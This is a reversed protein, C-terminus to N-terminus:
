KVVLKFTHRGSTAHVELIYLGPVVGSLELRASSGDFSEVARGSLDYLVAADFEGRVETYGPAPNPGVSIAAGDQEPTSIGDSGFTVTAEASSGSAYVAKVAAVHAGSGPAPLTCSAETFTGVPTGDLTVEYAVEPGSQATNMEFGNGSSITVDDIFLTFGDASTSCIAVYRADAPIDFEYQEWRQMPVTIEGSMWLFSAPDNDSKSYGVMITESYTLSYGKAWFGFKYPTHYTLRPSILYDENGYVSAFCALHRDGSHAHSAQREAYMSPTTQKPDFVIFSMPKTRGPFDFVSEAFTRGGDMDITQWPMNEDGPAVFADYSEFDDTIEGSENWTFLLSGDENEYLKVNVPDAIIESLMLKGTAVESETTIDIEKELTEYGPLSLSLTYMDKWVDAIEAKGDAGIEATYVNSRDANYLEVKAGEANGSHSNTAASISLTSYANKLVYASITRESTTGDPYVPAVAYRYVGPALSEWAADALSTAAVPADNVLTWEESDFGASRWVNYAYWAPLEGREAGLAAAPENESPYVYGEARLMLNGELGLVDCSAFEGMTYDLSYYYQGAAYPYEKSGTDVGMGIFGPYNIAVFCGHPADVTQALEYETWQDDTSFISRESYLLTGTPQGNEDLDYIYINVTNHPGGESTLYWHLRDIVMPRRFATGLIATGVDNSLGIQSTAVGADYRETYKADPASWQLTLAGADSVATAVNGAAYHAYGLKIDGLNKDADLAFEETVAPAYWHKTVTVTSPKSVVEDFAFAGNADTSTTLPMYGELRVDADAVPTGDASVVRGAVAHVPLKVMALDVSVDADNVEIAAAESTAEYGLKAVSVTYNGNPVFDFSYVGDAGTVAEAHLPEVSVTAGEIPNGDADKVTGDVTAGGTQMLFTVVTNGYYSSRGAEAGYEIPSSSTYYVPANGAVPSNYYPFQVSSYYTQTANELSHMTVVALNGGEYDFAKTLELDLVDEGQIMNISGEYVLTLDEMPIWGDAATTRGTNALYVRIDAGTPAASWTSTKYNYRVATIRGRSIGIENAAYVQQNVSYKYSFYFPSYSGWGKQTGVVVEEPTGVPMVTIEITNTTNDSAIEDLPDAIRAQLSTLGDFATCNVYVITTAGSALTEEVTTSGCVKGSADVLEVGFGSRDLKGRNVVTVAYPYTSGTVPKSNGSLELAALNNNVLKEIQIEDIILYSNGAAAVEHMALNFAGGEDTDFTFTQTGLAFARAFAVSGINKVPSAYNYDRLLHFDINHNGNALGILTVKYTSNAEFEFAHSILWDDGSANAATFYAGMAKAWSLNYYIWANGDDNADVVTWKAFEEESFGDTHPFGLNPGLNIAESVTPESTGAANAATISYTYSGQVDVGEETWSTAALNEAVTVGDPMRVVTYTLSQTDIWGGHTGETVAEWSIRASNNSIREVAIDTVAAPIDTGVFAEVSAPVGEGAATCPVVTWTHTDGGNAGIVDTYTSASGPQPASATGVAVGDRLIEVKTFSKIPEGGFTNAPNTWKLTAAYEGNAAPEVTLKEVAQPAGDPVVVYPIYIGVVQDDGLSRGRTGEGTTTNLITMYTEQLEILGSDNVRHTTAAWWLTKTGHDFEMSQFKEPYYGTHGVVTVKGDTKAIKCLDGDFSVAYLQGGWDAALTFFKRDLNVVKTGKGTALDVTYLASASESIKAVAYMTSTAHDYTMDNLFYDFGTLTGVTSSFGGELNMKVLADPVETTGSMKTTAVYYNGEDAYAGATSTSGFPVVSTYVPNGDGYLPFSVLSNTLSYQDQSFALMGYVQKDSEEMALVSGSFLSIASLVAAVRKRFQKM